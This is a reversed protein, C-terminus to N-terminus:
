PPGELLTCSVRASLCPQAMGLMVAMGVAPHATSTALLSVRRTEDEPVRGEAPGPPKGASAPGRVPQM